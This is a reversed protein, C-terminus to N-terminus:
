EGASRQLQALLTRAEECVPGGECTEQIHRLLARARYHRDTDMALIRALLLDVRLIDGKKRAQELLEEAVDFSGTDLAMEALVLCARPHDPIKQTAWWSPSVTRPDTQAVLLYAQLVPLLAPRGADLAQNELDALLPVAAKPDKGFTLLAEALRIDFSRARARRAAKLESRVGLYQGADRQILARALHALPRDRYAKPLADVMDLAEESLAARLLVDTRTAVIRLDFPALDYATDLMDLASSTRGLDALLQGLRFATEPDYPDTDRARELSERARKWDAMRLYQLAQELLLMSHQRPSLESDHKLLLKKLLAVRDAPAADAPLSILALHLRAPLFSPSADLAAQFWAKAKNPDKRSALGLGERIRALSATTPREAEERIRRAAEGFEAKAKDLYADGEVARALAFRGALEWLVPDPDHAIAERILLEGRLIDRRYLDREARAVVLPLSSTPTVTDLTEPDPPAGDPPLVGERAWLVWLLQTELDARDPDPTLADYLALAEVQQRHDGSELAEVVQTELRSAEVRRDLRTAVFALVLVVGVVGAFVRYRLSSVEKVRDPRQFPKRPSRASLPTELLERLDGGRSAPGIGPVTSRPPEVSLSVGPLDPVPREERPPPPVSKLPPGGAPALRAAPPEVADSRAVVTEATELDMSDDLVLDDAEEDGGSSVPRVSDPGTGVRTPQEEIPVATDESEVGEDAPRAGAEVAQDVGQVRDPPFHPAVDEGGDPVAAVTAPPSEPTLSSVPTPEEPEFAPPAEDTGFLGPGAPPAEPETEGDQFYDEGVDFLSGRAAESREGAVEEGSVAPPESPELRSEVDEEPVAAGAVQREIEHLRAQAEPDQASDSETEWAPGGRAVAELVAAVEEIGAGEPGSPGTLAEADSDPPLSRESLSIIERDEDLDGADRLLDRTTRARLLEGDPGVVAVETVIDDEDFEADDDFFVDDYENPAGFDVPEYVSDASQGPHSEWADQHVTRYWTDIEGRIRQATGTPEIVVVEDDEHRVARRRDPQIDLSLAGIGHPLLFHEGTLGEIEDEVEMDLLDDGDEAAIEGMFVPAAETGPDAPLVDVSDRRGPIVVTEMESRDPGEAEDEVVAEARSDGFPDTSSAPPLVEGAQHDFALPGDGSPERPSRPNVASSQIEGPHPQEPPVESSSSGVRQDGEHSPPKGAM